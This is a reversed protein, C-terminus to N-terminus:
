VSHFASSSRRMWIFRDVSARKLGTGMADLVLVSMILGLTPMFTPLLWGWVEAAQGTYKGGVTQLLVLLFLVGSGVFWMAALRRKCRDMPIQM